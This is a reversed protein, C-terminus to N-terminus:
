AQRTSTSKRGRELSFTDRDNSACIVIHGISWLGESSVRFALDIFGQGRLGFQELHQLQLAPPAVALTEPGASFCFAVCCGFLCGQYQVPARIM